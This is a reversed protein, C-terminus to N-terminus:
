GSRRRRRRGGDGADDRGRRGDVRLRGAVPEVARPARRRRAHRCARRPVEATWDDDGIRSICASRCSAVLGGPRDADWPDSRRCTTTTRAVAERTDRTSQLRPWRRPPQLVISADPPAALEALHEEIFRTHAARSACRRGSLLALLFAINHRLGLIDYALLATTMRRPGRRAHRRARHAEGAASRLARDRDPRRRRRFRRSHGDGSPSGTACCGAPSRCCGGRTRRTSAASSRTAPRAFTPRRSLAAARRVRRPAARAGSRPGTIAETIPHEVQLRTNMELFYFRADDGDGELLFEVTGANVYGVARGRPSRRMRCHARAGGALAAAGAGGRDGESAAAAAHLRARVPARRQRAHRRHDPSRHPPRSRDAARRLAHRRRVRARAESRAAVIAEDLESSTASSACARAAAAPPPRSCCRCDSRACPRRSPRPRSTPRRKARCSPCARPSIMTARAATKSGM